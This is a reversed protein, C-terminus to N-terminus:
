EAAVKPPPPEPLGAAKRAAHSLSLRLNPNWQALKALANHRDTEPNPKGLPTGDLRALARETIAAREDDSLRDQQHPMDAIAPNARVWAGANGAHTSYARPTIGTLRRYQHWEPSDQVLFMAAGNESLAPMPDEPPIAPEAPPQPPTSAAVIATAIVGVPQSSNECSTPSPRTAHAAVSLPAATERAHTHALPSVREAQLASLKEKPTPTPDRARASSLQAPNIENSKEDNAQFGNQSERFDATKRNESPPPSPRADVGRRATEPAPPRGRGLTWFPRDRQWVHGWQKPSCRAMLRLQDSDNPLSGGRVWAHGLLVLYFSAAEGPIHATDAFFKEPWFTMCPHKM